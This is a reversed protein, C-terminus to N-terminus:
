RRPKQNAERAILLTAAAAMFMFYGRTVNYRRRYSGATVYYPRIRTFTDVSTGRWSYLLSARARKRFGRSNRRRARRSFSRTYVMTSLFFIHRM